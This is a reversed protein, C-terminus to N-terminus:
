ASLILHVLQFSERETVAAGHAEIERGSLPSADGFAHLGAESYSEVLIVWDAIEDPKGRLGQDQTKLRSAEQDAIALEVRIVGVEALAAPFAEASLWGTFAARGDPKPSCKITHLISGFGGGRREVVTCLTRNMELVGPMMKRTWETPTNLVNLYADSVFVEISTTRYLVCYRGANRMSRYRHATLFGTLAARQPMHEKSHWLDLEPQYAPNTDYWGILLGQGNPM